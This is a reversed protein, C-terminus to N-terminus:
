FFCESRKPIWGNFGLECNGQSLSSTNIVRNVPECAYDFPLWRKRSGNVFIAIQKMGKFSRILCDSHELRADYRSWPHGFQRKQQSPNKMRPIIANLSFCCESACEANVWDRRTTRYPIPISLRLRIQAPLRINEFREGSRDKPDVIAGGNLRM